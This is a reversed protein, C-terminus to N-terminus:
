AKAAVLGIIFLVLVSIITLFIGIGKLLYIIEAADAHTMGGGSEM